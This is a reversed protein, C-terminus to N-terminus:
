NALQRAQDDSDNVGRLMVYEFTFRENPRLSKEFEKCASMLEELGSDYQTQRHLVILIADPFGSRLPALLDLMVHLSGASGGIVILRTPDVAPTPDILPTSDTSRTPESM